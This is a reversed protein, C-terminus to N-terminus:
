SDTGMFAIKVLDKKNVKGMANRPLEDMGKFLTPIMESSMHNSAWTKLDSVVFNEDVGDKLVIVAGVRQGWTEDEVGLVAVDKISPHELLIREVELAGIKFGGSKIIDVSSRGVIRYSNKSPEFAAVDGTKFWGDSTFEKKTDEMKNYYHKFVTPGKIQLDGSFQSNSPEMISTCNHSGTLLVKDSDQETIRVEVGPLPNGVFGPTRYSPEYPNGLAMGIETMGYRELLLHGSIEFWDNLVNNPLAASGSVMLRINKVLEGKVDINEFQASNQQYFDSLKAYIAPVAMFVNVNGSLLTQWVTGVDFKPLMKVQAGIALPCFLCNVLGHTHHLPLIHLICDDESWKWPGLMTNVQSIISSHTHVVGKPFGTTGSTYLIMADQSLMECEDYDSFIEDEVSFNSSFIEDLLFVEVHNRNTYNQAKDLFTKTTILASSESDKICYELSPSPHSKCLPVAINGSKWVGFIAESFTSDNGCLISITHQRNGNNNRSLKNELINAVNSSRSNLKGYAVPGFEDIISIKTQRTKSRLYTFLPKTISSSVFKSM